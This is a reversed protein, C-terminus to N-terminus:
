QKLIGFLFINTVTEFVEDPPLNESILGPNMLINIVTTEFYVNIAQRNLGPRLLGKAESDELVKKMLSTILQKRQQEFQDFEKSYLRSYEELRAPFDGRPLEALSRILSDILISIQIPEHLDDEVSRLAELVLDFAAKTAEKRDTFYRYLTMRSLGAHDAIEQMSTKKIGQVMFLNLAVSALHQTTEDKEIM